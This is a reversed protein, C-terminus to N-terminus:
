RWKLIRGLLSKMKTKCHDQFTSMVPRWKFNPFDSTWEDSSNIEVSLESVVKIDSRLGTSHSRPAEKGM